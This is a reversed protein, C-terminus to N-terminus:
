KNTSSSIKRWDSPNIPNPDQWLGIKKSQAQRQAQEYIPLSQQYAWAMGQEVLALNVNKDQLYVEALLRQYKDYGSIRLTVPQKFVLTALAQKARNGFPQRNEPADIYQLRVKLPKNNYLCSLTDGDSIGVVKCTIQRETATVLPASLLFVPLILRFIRM